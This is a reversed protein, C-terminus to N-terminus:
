AKIKFNGQALFYTTTALSSSVKDYILKDNKLSNNKNEDYFGFLYEGNVGNRLTRHKKAINEQGTRNACLYFLNKEFSTFQVNKLEKLQIDQYTFSLPLLEKNAISPIIKINKIQTKFNLLAKLEGLHTLYEELYLNKDVCYSYFLLVQILSSKGCSNTKALITLPKFTFEQKLISKFNEIKLGTIM